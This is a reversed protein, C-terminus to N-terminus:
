LFGGFFLLSGVVLSVQLLLHLPMSRKGVSERIFINDDIRKLVQLLHAIILLCTASVALPLAISVRKIDHHIGIANGQNIVNFNAYYVWSLLMIGFTLLLSIKVTNGKGIVIPITKRRAQKDGKIDGLDNLPSTVFVMLAVIVAAFIPYLLVSSIKGTILHLAYDILVGPNVHFNISAGLLLSCAMAVSIVFTKIVFKDKLSIRPLSYLIGILSVASALVFGIFNDTIIPISLGIVNTLIVFLLADDKSVRGSPIPRNTKGNIRDLDADFLDNLVYM